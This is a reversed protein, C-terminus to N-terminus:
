NKRPWAATEQATTRLPQERLWTLGESLAFRAADESSDFLPILRFVRDHTGSGRGSRISVAASYRRCPLQRTLPSVLYKGVTIPTTIFIKRQSTGFLETITTCGPVAVPTTNLRSSLLPDIPDSSGPTTRRM